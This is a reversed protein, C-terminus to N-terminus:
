KEIRMVCMTSAATIRGIASDGGGPAEPGPEVGVDPQRAPRQRDPHVHRDGPHHDVHHEVLEVSSGPNALGNHPRFGRGFPSARGVPLGRKWRGSGLAPPGASSRYSQAWADAAAADSPTRRGRERCPRPRRRAPPRAMPVTFSWAPLAMLPAVTLATCGRHRARRLEGRGGVVPAAPRHDPEPAAGPAEDDFRGPIERDFGVHRHAHGGDGGSVKVSARSGPGIGSASSRLM